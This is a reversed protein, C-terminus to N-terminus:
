LLLANFTVSVAINILQEITVLVFFRFMLFCMSLFDLLINLLLLSLVKSFTKLIDLVNKQAEKDIDIRVSIFVYSMRTLVLSLAENISNRYTYFLDHKLVDIPSLKEHERLIISKRQNGGADTKIQTENDISVVPKAINM